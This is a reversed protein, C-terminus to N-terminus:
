CMVAAIDDDIDAFTGRKEAGNNLLDYLKYYIPIVM